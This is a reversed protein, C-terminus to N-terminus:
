KGVPVSRTSEVALFRDFEERSVVIYWGESREDSEVLLKVFGDLEEGTMGDHVARTVAYLRPVFCAMTVLAVRGQGRQAGSFASLTTSPLM